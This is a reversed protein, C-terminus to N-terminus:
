VGSPSPLSCEHQGVRNPHRTLVHTERGGFDNHICGDLPRPHAFSHATTRGIARNHLYSVLEGLRHHAVRLLEGPLCEGAHALLQGRCDAETIRHEPVLDDDVMLVAFEAAIRMQALVGDAHLNPISDALTLNDRADPIGAMGALGM